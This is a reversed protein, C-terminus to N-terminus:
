QRAGTFHIRYQKEKEKQLIINLANNEASSRTDLVISTHGEPFGGRHEIIHTSLNQM